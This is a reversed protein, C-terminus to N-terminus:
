GLRLRPENQATPMATNAADDAQHAHAPEISDSTAARQTCASPPASASTPQRSSSIPSYPSRRPTAVHTVAPTIPVAAPGTTPPSSVSANEQSAIKTTCTGNATSATGAARATGTTGTTTGSRWRGANRGLRVSARSDAASM